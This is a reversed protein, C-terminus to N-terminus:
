YSLTIVIYERISVEEALGTISVPLVMNLWLFQDDELISRKLAPAGTEKWASILSAYAISFDGAIELVDEYPLGMVGMYYQVLFLEVKAKMNTFIHTRAEVREKIRESQQGVDDRSYTQSWIAYEYGETGDERVYSLYETRKTMFNFADVEFEFRIQAVKKGMFSYDAHSPRGNPLMIVKKDLNVGAKLHRRFDIKHPPWNKFDVAVIDYITLRRFGARESHNDIWDAMHVHTKEIYAIHQEKTQILFGGQSYAEVESEHIKVVSYICEDPMAPHKNPNSAQTLVAYFM